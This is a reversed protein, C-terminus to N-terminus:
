RCRPCSRPTRCLRIAVCVSAASVLEFGAGCLSAFIWVLTVGAVRHQPPRYKGDAAGVSARISRISLVAHRHRRHSHHSGRAAKPYKHTPLHGYRAVKVAKGGGDTAARHDGGDEVPFPLPPAPGVWKQQWCIGEEPHILWYRTILEGRGQAPQGRYGIDGEGTTTSPRGRFSWRRASRKMASIWGALYSLVTALDKRTDDPYCPSLITGKWQVTAVLEALPNPDAVNPTWAGAAPQRRWTEDRAAGARSAGRTGKAVIRSSRRSKATICARAPWRM